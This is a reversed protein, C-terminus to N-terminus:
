KKVEKKAKEEQAKVFKCFAAGASGGVMLFGVVIKVIEGGTPKMVLNIIENIDIGLGTLMILLKGWNQEILTIIKDLV